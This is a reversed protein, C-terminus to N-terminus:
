VLRAIARDLGESLSLLNQIKLGVQIPVGYEELTLIEPPLFLNEVQFGFVSYDGASMGLKGFVERQILDLAGLYRPFAFSAWNRQFLFAAEVAQDPTEVFKGENFLKV